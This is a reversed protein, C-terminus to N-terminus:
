NQRLLSATDERGRVQALALATKGNSNEIGVAAGSALLTSVVENEGNKAAYM